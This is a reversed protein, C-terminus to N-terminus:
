NQKVRKTIVVAGALAMVLVILMIASDGVAPSTVVPVVPAPVDEVAPANEVPAPAAEEGGSVVVDQPVEAPLTVVDAPASAGALTLLGACSQPIAWQINNWASNTLWIQSDRTGSGYINDCIQIDFPIQKGETLTVGEPADMKIEVVYGKLYNGDLPGNFFVLNDYAGGGDWAVSGWGMDWWYAGSLVNINDIDPGAFTRVQWYPYGPDTGPDGDYTWSGDDAQIMQAGGGAAKINNWDLHIEVNDKEGDDTHNPTKDYIKLYFYLASSDWAVWVDGTAGAADTGALVYKIPYPGVYSADLEGDIVPSAQPVTVSAALAPIALIAMMATCLVLALFKKM